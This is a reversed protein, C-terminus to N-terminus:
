QQRNNINNLSYRLKLISSMNGIFTTFLVFIEIELKNSIFTSDLLKIKLDECNFIDMLNQFLDVFAYGYEVKYLINTGFHDDSCKVVYEIPKSIDEM